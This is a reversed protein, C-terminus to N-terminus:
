SPALLLGKPGRSNTKRARRASSGVSVPPPARLTVSCYSESQRATFFLCLNTVLSSSQRLGFPKHSILFTAALGSEVFAM